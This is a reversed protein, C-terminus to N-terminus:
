PGEWGEASEDNEIQERFSPPGPDPGQAVDM